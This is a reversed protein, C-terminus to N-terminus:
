KTYVIEYMQDFDGGYVRIFFGKGCARMHAEMKYKSDTGNYSFTKGRNFCLAGGDWFQFKFKVLANGNDEIDFTFVNGDTTNIEEDIPVFIKDGTSRYTCTKAQLYAIINSM